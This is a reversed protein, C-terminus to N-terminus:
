ETGQAAAVAVTAQFFQWAIKFIFFAEKRMIGIEFPSRPGLM